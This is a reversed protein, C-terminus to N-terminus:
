AAGILRGALELDSKGLVRVDFDARAYRPFASDVWGRRAMEEPALQTAISPLSKVLILRSAGLMGALWAGLSDSTIDWSEPISANGAVMEHPMWVPVRNQSLTARIEDENGAAILCANMEVLMRGYDEMARLALRHATRDDFGEREQAARVADAWPGGGPVVVVRRAGAAAIMDIWRPLEVSGALSGGLKVVVV